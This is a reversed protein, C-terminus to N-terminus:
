QEKRRIEFTFADLFEEWMEIPMWKPKHLYCLPFEECGKGGWIIPSKVHPQFGGRSYSISEVDSLKM